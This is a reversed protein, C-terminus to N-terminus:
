RGWSVKPKRRGSKGDPNVSSIDAYDRGCDGAHRAACRRLGASHEGVVYHVDSDMMDAAETRHKLGTPNEACHRKVLSSNRKRKIIAAELGVDQSDICCWM